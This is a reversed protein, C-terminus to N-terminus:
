GGCLPDPDFCNACDVSDWEETGECDCWGDEAYGCRDEDGCCFNQEGSCGFPCGVCGIFKCNACDAGDWGFADQCDCSGNAAWGCPDGDLCCGADEQVCGNPCTVAELTFPVAAIDNDYNSEPLVREFNVSAQLMYDGPPVGTIDIFQCPLSSVYTDAWGAQIGQYSCDFFPGTDTGELPEYDELCFAQKHGVAVVNGALDLLQYEAYSTFHYHDHCESYVFLDSDRPSGLFLAGAGVNPTRLSFRLLDREGPAAVCGEAIQCSDAEFTERTLRITDTINQADITLDPLACATGDQCATGTPCCGRDGCESDDDCEDVCAGPLNAEPLPAECFQEPLCGDCFTPCPAGVAVCTDAALGTDAALCCTGGEPCCPDFPAADTAADTAADLDSADPAADPGADPAVLDDDDDDDGCGCGPSWALLLSLLLAWTVRREDM